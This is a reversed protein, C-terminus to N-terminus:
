THTNLAIQVAPRQRRPERSTWTRVNETGFMARERSNKWQIDSHVPRNLRAATMLLSVESSQSRERERNRNGMPTRNRGGWSEKKTSVDLVM